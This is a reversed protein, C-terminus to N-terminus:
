VPSYDPSQPSEPLASISPRPVLERPEFFETVRAQSTTQQKKVNSQDNSQQEHLVPQNIMPKTRDRNSSSSRKNKNENSSVGMNVFVATYSM